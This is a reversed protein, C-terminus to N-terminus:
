GAHRGIEQDGLSVGGRGEGGVVRRADGEAEIPIPMEDAGIVDEEARALYVRGAVREREKQISCAAPLLCCANKRSGAAWCRAPAAPGAGAPIPSIPFSFDPSHRNM